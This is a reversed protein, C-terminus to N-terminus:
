SKAKLKQSAKWSWWGVAWLWWWCGVAFLEGAGALLWGGVGLLRSFWAFSKLIQQTPHSSM